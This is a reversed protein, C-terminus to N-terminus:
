TIEVTGFTMKILFDEFKERNFTLFINSYNKDYIVKNMANRLVRDAMMSYQPLKPIKKASVPSGHVIQSRVSYLFKIDKFIQYKQETNEALFSSVRESLKHSLESSDTSFLCELATCYHSIKIGLDVHQRAAQIYIQALNLRDVDKTANTNKTEVFSFPKSIGKHNLDKISEVEKLDFIVPLYKGESNFAGGKVMNSRVVPEKLSVIINGTGKYPFEVFGLMIDIAHDKLLWFETLILKCNAIFTCLLDDATDDDIEINVIKYFVADSSALAKYELFGIAEYLEQTLLKRIFNRNNTLKIEEILNIGEGLDTDIKLNFATTIFLVKM